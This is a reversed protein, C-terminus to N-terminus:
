SLYRIAADLANISDKFHGLGLNCSSCLLGRIKQTTHCHDVVLKKKPVECIKCKGDQDNFLKLYDDQSIGFKKKIRQISVKEKNSSYREKSKKKNCERCYIAKGTMTYKDNHFEALSKEQECKPCYSKGEKLLTIRKEEPLDLTGYKRVRFYHAGCLGKTRLPNLCGEIKCQNM